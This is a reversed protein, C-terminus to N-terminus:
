GAPPHEDDQQAPEPLQELRWTRVGDVGLEIRRGSLPRLGDASAPPVVAALSMNLLLHRPVTNELKNIDLMLASPSARYDGLLRRPVVFRSALHPLTMSGSTLAGVTHLQLTDLGGLNIVSNWVDLIEVDPVDPDTKLWEEVLWASAREFWLAALGGACSGPEFLNEEDTTGSGSRPNGEHSYTLAQMLVTGLAAPRFFRGVLEDMEDKEWPGQRDLLKALWACRLRVDDLRSEYDLPDKSLAFSLYHVLPKTDMEYITHKTGKRLALMRMDELPHDFTTLCSAGFPVKKQLIRDLEQKVLVDSVDWVPLSFTFYRDFYDRDAARYQGGSTQPTFAQPVARPFLASLADVLEEAEEDSFGCRKVRLLWEERSIKDRQEPSDLRITLEDKWAPLMNYLEAFFLRLFTLAFFDAPDVNGGTLPLFTKAQIAFRQSARPTCLSTWMHELYFSEFRNKPTPGFINMSGDELLPGLERFVIERLFHQQSAPLHLPYQVIKELYDEAGRRGTGLATCLTNITSTRDYALLYNVRPLRGLLRVTKMLALLEKPQLRDVDDVEVLIKVSAEKIAKALDEFASDWSKSPLFAKLTESAATGAGPIAKLAPAGRGVLRLAKTRINEHSGVPFAELIASYLEAQLGAEDDFSWPNFRVVKISKQLRHRVYHLVTTKGSGWAGVLGLVTSDNSDALGNILKAVM